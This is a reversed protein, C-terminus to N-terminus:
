RLSGSKVVNGGSAQRVVPAQLQRFLRRCFDDGERILGHYSQDAHTKRENGPAKGQKQPIGSQQAPADRSEGVLNMLKKVVCISIAGVKCYAYLLVNGDCDEQNFLISQVLFIVTQM